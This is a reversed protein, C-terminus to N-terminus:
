ENVAYLIYNIKDVEIFLLSFLESFNYVYIYNFLFKLLKKFTKHDFMFLIKQTFCLGYFKIHNKINTHLNLIIKKIILGMKLIKDILKVFFSSDNKLPFESM